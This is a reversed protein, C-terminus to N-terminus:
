QMVGGFVLAAYVIVILSVGEAIRAARFLLKNRRERRDIEAQEMIQPFQHQARRPAEPTNGPAADAGGPSLPPSNGPMSGTLIAAANHIIDLM